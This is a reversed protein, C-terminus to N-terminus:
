PKEETAPSLSETLKTLAVAEENASSDHDFVARVNRAAEVVKRAGELEARLTDREAEAALARSQHEEAITMLAEKAELMRAREERAERLEARLTRVETLLDRSTAANPTAGMSLLADIAKVRDDSMREPASM